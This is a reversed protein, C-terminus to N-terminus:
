CQVNLAPQARGRLGEAIASLADGLQRLSLASLQTGIQMLAQWPDARTDSSLKGTSDASAAQDLDMGVAGAAGEASGAGTAPLGGADEAPPM